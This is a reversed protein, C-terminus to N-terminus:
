RTHSPDKTGEFHVPIKKKRLNILPELWRSRRVTQVRSNTATQRLTTKIEKEFEQRNGNTLKPREGTNNEVGDEKRSKRRWCTMKFHAFVWEHNTSKRLRVAPNQKGKIAPLYTKNELSNGVGETKVPQRRKRLQPSRRHSVVRKKSQVERHQSNNPLRTTLKARTEPNNGSQRNRGQIPKDWDM